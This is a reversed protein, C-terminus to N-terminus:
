LNSFKPVRGKLYKTSRAKKIQESSLEKYTIPTKKTIRISPRYIDSKSHYGIEGKQNVWKEKFWRTLGTKKTKTTKKGIYPSKTTGYKTSFRKKYTKVLIGSRYASPKPIKLYVSQKTRKYLDKDRPTPKQNSTM